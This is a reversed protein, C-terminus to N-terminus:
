VNCKVLFANTVKKRAVSNFVQERKQLLRFIVVGVCVVDTIVEVFVYVLVLLRFLIRVAVLIVILEQFVNLIKAFLRQFPLNPFKNKDSKLCFTILSEDCNVAAALRGLHFASAMRSNRSDPAAESTVSTM